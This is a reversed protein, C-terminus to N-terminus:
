IFHDLHLYFIFFIYIYIYIFYFFDRWLIHWDSCENKDIHVRFHMLVIDFIHLQAVCAWVCISNPLGLNDIQWLNFSRTDNGALLSLWIIIKENHGWYVLPFFCTLQPMIYKLTYTHTNHCVTILVTVWDAQSSLNGGACRLCRFYCVSSLTMM